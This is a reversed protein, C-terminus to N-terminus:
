EGGRASVFVRPEPPQAGLKSAIIVGILSMVGGIVAVLVGMQSAYFERFPGARATM